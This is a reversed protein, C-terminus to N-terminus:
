GEGPCFVSEADEVFEHVTNWNLKPNNQQIMNTTDDLSYGYLLHHCAAHRAAILGDIGNGSSFDDRQLTNVFQITQRTRGRAPYAM